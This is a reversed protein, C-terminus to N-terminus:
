LSNENNLLSVKKDSLKVICFLLAFAVFIDTSVKLWITFNALLLMLFLYKYQPANKVLIKTILVFLAIFGV